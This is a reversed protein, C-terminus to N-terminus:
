RCAPLQQQRSDTHGDANCAKARTRAHRHRRAEGVTHTLPKECYVHKGMQLAASSAPAHHHDPTSVVVADIEPLTELMRRYDSFRRAKPFAGGATGLYNSDIDCVAYINEHSVGQVNAWGRNQCGIIAINLKDNAGALQSLNPIFYPAAAAAVSSRLFTRRSIRM